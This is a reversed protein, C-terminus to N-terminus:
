RVMRRALEDAVAVAIVEANLAPGGGPGAPLKAVVAEAIAQVDAPRSARQLMVGTTTSDGFKSGWVVAAIRSLDEQTLPMGDDTGERLLAAASPIVEDLLQTLRITGPCSHRGPNWPDFQRHYGIGSDSMAQVLRAPAGTQRCFWAILAVLADAQRPSWRQEPNGADSTEVSVCYPNGAAQADAQRDISQWQWVAGDLLRGDWPGGIGFHAEVGDYGKQRFMSDTPGLYGAITHVVLIRPTILPEDSPDALPRWSAAPYRTQV